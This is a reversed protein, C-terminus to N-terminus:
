LVSSKTCHIEKVEESLEADQQASSVSNTKGKDKEGSPLAAEHSPACPRPQASGTRHGRVQMCLKNNQVIPLHYKILLCM